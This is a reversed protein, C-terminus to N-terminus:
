KKEQRILIQVLCVFQASPQRRRRQRQVRFAIGGHLQRRLSDRQIQMLRSEIHLDRRLACLM